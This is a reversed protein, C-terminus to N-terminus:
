KAAGPKPKFSARAKTALQEYLKGFARADTERYLQHFPGNTEFLELITEGKWVLEISRSGHGYGSGAFAVEPGTGKKAHSEIFRGDLLEKCIDKTEIPRSETRHNIGKDKNYEFKIRHVQKTSFEWSERLEDVEEEKKTRVDPDGLCASLRISMGDPMEGAALGKELLARAAEERKVSKNIEEARSSSPHFTIWTFALALIVTIRTKM